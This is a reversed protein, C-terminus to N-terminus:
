RRLPARRWACLACATACTMCTSAPPRTPTQPSSPPCRAAMCDLLAAGAEWSACAAHQMRAHLKCVAGASGLSAQRIGARILKNLEALWRKTISALRLPSLAGLLESAAAVVQVRSCHMAHPPWALCGGHLVLRGRGTM